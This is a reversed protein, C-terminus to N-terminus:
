GRVHGFLIHWDACSNMKTEFLRIARRLEGASLAHYGRRPTSAGTAKLNELFAVGSDFHMQHFEEVIEGPLCTLEILGCPLKLEDLVKRWQPFLRPGITSYLLHGEPRLMSHLQLLSRAPNEFWQVTMGSIILDYKKSLDPQEGDMVGFSIEAQRPLQAKCQELMAQSIDTIFFRGDRYHELLHRTLLGTGCGIELIDPSELAPFSAALRRAVLSQLKAEREYGSACQSFRRLVSRKHPTFRNM